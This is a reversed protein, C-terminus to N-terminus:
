VLILISLAFDLKWSIQYAESHDNYIMQLTWRNHCLKIILILVSACTDGFSFLRKLFYSIRYFKYFLTFM